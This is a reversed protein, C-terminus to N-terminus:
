HNDDLMGAIDDGTYFPEPLPTAASHDAPRVPHGVILLTGGAAVAAALGRGKV